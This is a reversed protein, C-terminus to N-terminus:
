HSVPLKETIKQIIDATDMERTNSFRVLPLGAEEFLRNVDIDRKQRDERDHTPDDLEVAVLPRVYSKDCLVYDVSMRNIHARAARWDQGKVKHDLISSINVQPFIYFRDCLGKALIDFFEHESRTMIFDKRRYHYAITPKGVSDRNKKHSLNSMILLAIVGLTIFLLTQQTM